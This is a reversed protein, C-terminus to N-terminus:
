YPNSDITSNYPPASMAPLMSIIERQVKEEAKIPDDEIVRDGAVDLRSATEDAHCANLVSAASQEPM